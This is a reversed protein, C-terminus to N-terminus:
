RGARSTLKDLARRPRLLCLLTDLIEPAPRRDRVMSALRRPLYALAMLLYLAAGQWPRGHREAFRRGSLRHVGDLAPGLSEKVEAESGKGSAHDIVLGEDLEVSGGAYRHRMCLDADEFYMFFAPSFGGIHDFDSREILLAAGSVWAPDDPGRQYARSWRGLALEEAESRFGPPNSFGLPRDPDLAFGGVLAGGLGDGALVRAPLSRVQADPNLFLLLPASTAAAGANCGAGFGLNPLTLFHEVRGSVQEELLELQAPTSGSDAVCLETLDRDCVAELAALWEPLVHASDHTVTIVALRPGAGNGSM